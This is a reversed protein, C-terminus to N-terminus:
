GLVELAVTAAEVRTCAVIGRTGSHIHTEVTERCIAPQGAIGRTPEGTRPAPPGWGRPAVAAATTPTGSHIGLARM